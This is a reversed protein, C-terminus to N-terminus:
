HPTKRQPDICYGDLIIQLGPLFKDSGMAKTPNNSTDLAIKQGVATIASSVTSAQVQKGKGYYGSQVQASFGTLYQVRQQFPTAQLYADMGLPNIYSDWHEWCSEWNKTTQAVQGAKFAADAAYFDHVYGSQLEPPLCDLIETGPPSVYCQVIHLFKLGIFLAMGPQKWLVPIPYRRHCEAEGRHAINDIPM